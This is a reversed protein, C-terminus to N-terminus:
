IARIIDMRTQLMYILAAMRRVPERRFGPTHWGYAM